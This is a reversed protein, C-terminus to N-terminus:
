RAHIRLYPADFIKFDRTQSKLDRSTM